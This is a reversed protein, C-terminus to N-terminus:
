GPQGHGLYLDRLLCVEAGHHIIEMNIYLILKAMPADAYEPPMDPGQPQALGAAGLSRVGSSYGDYAEDLQRLAGHATGSYRFTTYDAPSGGFYSANTSAFTLILHALRWAITTVPERDRPPMAYDMTFEGEGFSAPAKSEGRPSLTWCGPVPPWFYEDDALGELRPRLQRQWHSELQDVLEVNWDIDMSPRYLLYLAKAPASAARGQGPAAANLLTNDDPGTRLCRESGAELDEWRRSRLM